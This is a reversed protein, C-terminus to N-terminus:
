QRLLRLDDLCNRETLSSQESQAKGEATTVQKKFNETPFKRLGGAIKFDLNEFDSIPEGTTTASTILDGISKADEVEGILLMDAKPYQSSHSVASKFSIKWSRSEVPQPWKDIRFKKAGRKKPGGYDLVAVTPDIPSSTTPISSIPVALPAKSNSAPPTSPAAALTPAATPM